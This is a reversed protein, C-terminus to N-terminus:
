AKLQLQPLAGEGLVLHVQGVKAALEKYAELEKLRVLLPNEALVKATQAMSRTAATEERRFIVNAEAEKQAEIVRNLLVKMEGPLVLDKLGLDLVELGLAAARASVAPMLALGLEERAALLEDLTRTAVAERSALQVALYLVEEPARAVTALRRADAVRYNAALNLRLTVRDKTMVEQANVQLLRERVEIPLLQVKRQVTWAAYRGSGLVAELAGDVYRIVTSGEAATVEVYDSAPVLKRVEDRLPKTEVGSVDFVEITVASAANRALKEVTWLQHVGAGLWHTPKGQRSVLAREYPGLSVVRLDEAPVLALEEPRLNAVLVDTDFRKLELHKWPAVYVRHRGPGLYRSPEGNILVLMREDLSVDVRM